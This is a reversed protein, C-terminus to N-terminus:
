NELSLHKIVELNRQYDAQDFVFKQYLKRSRFNSLVIKKSFFNTKDIGLYERFSSYPYNILDKLSKVFSSNYPNLHIYRSLHLLQENGEVRVAKFKGQFLAGIRKKKINFYRTYSNTFNSIFKSIGSEKKQILLFHFHNPMLSYAVIECLFNRKKNLESLIKNKKNLSLTTFISFRLPLIKNQYYLFTQRARDYNRKNLFVPQSAVGKNFVHYIENNVLPIKRGPM